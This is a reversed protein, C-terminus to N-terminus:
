LKTSIKVREPKRPKTVHSEKIGAMKRDKDNHIYRDNFYTKVDKKPARANILADEKAKSIAGEVEKAAASTKENGIELDFTEGLSNLEPSIKENNIGEVSGGDFLKGEEKLMFIEEPNLNDINSSSDIIEKSVEDSDLTRKTKKPGERRGLAEDIEKFDMSGFKTM